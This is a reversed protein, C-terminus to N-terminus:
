KQHKKNKQKLYQQMIYIVQSNISRHEKKAAGKLKLYLEKNIRITTKGDVNYCLTNKQYTLSNNLNFGWALIQNIWYRETLALHNKGGEVEELIEIIPKLKNEKLFKVWASNKNSPKSLHMSLRDELPQTTLGVYKIVNEIPCSLTYVFGKM